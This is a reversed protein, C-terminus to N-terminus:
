TNKVIRTTASGPNGLSPPPPILGQTQPLIENNPLIKALFQMFIFSIPSLPVGEGWDAM